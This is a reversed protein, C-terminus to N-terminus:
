SLDRRVKSLAAQLVASIRSKGGGTPGKFPVRVQGDAALNDAATAWSVVVM